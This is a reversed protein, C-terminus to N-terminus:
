FEGAHIDLDVGDVARVEGFSRKLARISVIAADSM